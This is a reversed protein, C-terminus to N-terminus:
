VCVVIKAQQPQCPDGVEQQEEPGSSEGTCPDLMPDVEFTHTSCHCKADVLTSTPRNGLLISSMGRKRMEPSM